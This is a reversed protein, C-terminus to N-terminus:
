AIILDAYGQEALYADIGAKLDARRTIVTTYELAGNIIRNALYIEIPTAM